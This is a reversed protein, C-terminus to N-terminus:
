ISDSVRMAIDSVLYQAIGSNGKWMHGYTAITDNHINGNHSFTALYEMAHPSTAYFTVSVLRAHDGRTEHGSVRLTSGGIQAVEVRLHQM